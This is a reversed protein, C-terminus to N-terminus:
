LNAIRESEESEIERLLSEKERQIQFLKKGLTERLYKQESDISEILETKEKQVKQLQKKLASFVMFHKEPESKKKILM